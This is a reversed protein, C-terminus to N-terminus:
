LSRRNWDSWWIQFSNCRRANATPSGRYKAFSRPGAPAVVRIDVEASPPRGATLGALVGFGLSALPNSFGRTTLLTWCALAFLAALPHDLLYTRSYILFVPFASVLATTWRATAADYLRCIVLYTAVFWVATFLPMVFEAVMRSEGFALM